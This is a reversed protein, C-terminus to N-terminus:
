NIKPLIYDLGQFEMTNLLSQRVKIITDEKYDFTKLLWEIFFISICNFYHGAFKDETVPINNKNLTYNSDILTLILDNVDYNGIKIIRNFKNQCFPFMLVVSLIKKKDDNDFSLNKLIYETIDYNNKNNIFTKYYKNRERLVKDFMGVIFSPGPGPKVMDYVYGFTDVNSTEFAYILYTYELEMEYFLFEYRDVLYKLILLDCDRISKIFLEYATYPNTIYYLRDPAYNDFLYSYRKCPSMKDIYFCEMPLGLDINTKKKWFYEDSLITSALKCTMCYNIVDVHPLYFLIRFQLERSFSLINLCINNEM